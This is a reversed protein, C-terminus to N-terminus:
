LRTICHPAPPACRNAPEAMGAPPRAIFELIRCRFAPAVESLLKGGFFPLLHVRLRDWHGKVYELNREGATLAEYEKRFAAAAFTFTKGNKLEGARQKFRPAWSVLGRCHRKGTRVGRGEHQHSLKPRGSLDFVALFRATTVNIFTFSEVLFSTIHRWRLSRRGVGAWSRRNTYSM